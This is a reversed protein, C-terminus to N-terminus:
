YNEFGQLLRMGSDCMFDACKDDFWKQIRVIFCNSRTDWTSPPGDLSMRLPKPRRM